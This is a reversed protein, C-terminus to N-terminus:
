AAGRRHALAVGSLALAVLAVVLAGLSAFLPLDSGGNATGAGADGAAGAPNPAPTVQVGAAPTEVSAAETTATVQSSAEITGGSAESEAAPVARVEVIPAPNDQGEVNVWEVTEGGQYTQYAKFILIGPEDPTRAVFAFEDYEEPGIRGGSWTVATMRGATDREVERQWGSKPQFSSVTLNDPFEVRVQVTPEDKETPVRVTFAQFTDPPVADPNVRIHASAVETTILAALLAVFVALSLRRGCCLLRSCRFLKISLFLRLAITFM